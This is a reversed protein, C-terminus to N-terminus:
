SPTRLSEVARPLHDLLDTAIMGGSLPHDPDTDCWSRAADAHAVVGACAADFLGLGGMKESPMSREGAILPAKYHQALLGAIVGALVDGSGGTALAPNSVDHSRGRQGDSVVTRAGKLVVVCGLRRALEAAAADPDAKCDVGIALSRALRAFEGPHPTLIAQARFDRWLEAVQALNNLADADVVVPVDEQQVARLSVAEEGPGVGLGPGIVMADSSALAEDLSRAAHHAIIRGDDGVRMAVGTASPAIVLGANLVPEPMLLRALGAGARLAALASLAPGGIMRAGDSASDDDAPKHACGGIISVTGFTGKHGQPDRAPLRPRVSEQDRTNM